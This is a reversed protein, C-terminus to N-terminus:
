GNRHRQKQIMNYNGYYQVLVMIVLMQKYCFIGDKTPHHLLQVNALLFQLQYWALLAQPTWKLRKVRQKTNKDYVLEEKLQKLWYTYKKAELVHQDVYGLAGTFSDIDKLTHNMKWNGVIHKKITM